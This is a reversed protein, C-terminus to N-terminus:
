TGSCRGEPFCQDSTQNQIQVEKSAYGVFSYVLTSNPGPIELSYKGSLDTLGGTITGKVQVTAGPLPVGKEDSVTGTITMRQAYVSTSALFLLILLANKM